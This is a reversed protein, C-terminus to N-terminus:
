DASKAQNIASPEFLSDPIDDRFAFYSITVESDATYGKPYGYYGTSSYLRKSPIAIDGIKVWNLYTAVSKTPDKIGYIETRYMLFDNADIWWRIHLDDNIEPPYKADVVYCEKGDLLAIASINSDFIFANTTRLPNAFGPIRTPFEYEERSERFAGNKEESISVWQKDTYILVADLLKLSKSRKDELVMTGKAHLKGPKANVTYNAARQYKRTPDPNTSKFTYDFSYPKPKFYADGGIAQVALELVKRTPLSKAQPDASKPTDAVGATDKGESEKPADAVTPATGSTSTAATKDSKDGKNGTGNKEKPVLMGMRVSGDPLPRWKDATWVEAMSASEPPRTREHAGGIPPTGLKEVRGNEPYIRYWVMYRNVEAIKAMREAHLKEQEEVTKDRHKEMQEMLDGFKDDIGNRLTAEEVASVMVTGDKEPGVGLIAQAFGVKQIAKILEETELGKFICGTKILTAKELSFCWYLGNWNVLTGYKGTVVPESNYAQGFFHEDSMYNRLEDHGHYISSDLNLEKKGPRVSLVFFPSRDSRNEGMLDNYRSVVIFRNRDCPFFHFGNPLDTTKARYEGLITWEGDQWKAFTFKDYRNGDDDEIPPFHHAVAYLAGDYWYPDSAYAGAGLSLAEPLQYKDKDVINDNEDVFFSHWKLNPGSTGEYHTVFYLDDVWQGPFLQAFAPQGFACLLAGFVLSVPGRFNSM